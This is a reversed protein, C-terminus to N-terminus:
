ESAVPMAMRSVADRDKRSFPVNAKLAVTTLDLDGEEEVMLRECHLCLM